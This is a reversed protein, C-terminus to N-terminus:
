HIPSRCIPSRTEILQHDAFMLSRCVWLDVAGAICAIWARVFLMPLTLVVFWGALWCVLWGVLLGVLRGVLWM